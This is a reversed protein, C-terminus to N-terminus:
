SVELRRVEFSVNLTPMPNGVAEGRTVEIVSEGADTTWLNAHVWRPGGAMLPTFIRDFDHLRILAGRQVSPGDHKVDSGHVFEVSATDDIIQKGNATLLDNLTEIIRAARVSM